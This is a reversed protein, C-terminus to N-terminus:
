EATPADARDAEARAALMETFRRRATRPVDDAEEGVGLVIARV